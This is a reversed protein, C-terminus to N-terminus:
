LFNFEYLFLCIDIECADIPKYVKDRISFFEYNMILPTRDFKFLLQQSM